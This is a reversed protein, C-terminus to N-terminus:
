GHLLDLSNSDYSNPGFLYIGWNLLNNASLKFADGDQPMLTLMHEDPDWDAVLAAAGDHVVVTAVACKQLFQYYQKETLRLM